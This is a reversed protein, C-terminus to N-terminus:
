SGAAPVGEQFERALETFLPRGGPLGALIRKAVDANMKIRIDQYEPNDLSVLDHKVAASIADRVVPSDGHLPHQSIWFRVDIDYDGKREQLLNFAKAVREYFGEGRISLARQGETALAALLGSMFDDSTLDPM